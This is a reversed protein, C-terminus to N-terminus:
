AGSHPAAGPLAARHVELASPCGGDETVAVSVLHEGLRITRFRWREADDAVECGLELQVAGGGIRFSVQGLPLRLGLGRAKLYAEKLTWLEVARGSRGAVDIGNLDRRELESFVMPALRLLTPARSLLETDVGIEDHQATLCVVLGSTNSLNFSLGAPPALRPKGHLDRAFRLSAPDRRLARGIVTRVLLRTALYQLRAVDPIFRRYQVLEDPQLLALAEPCELAEGPNAWWLELRGRGATAAPATV